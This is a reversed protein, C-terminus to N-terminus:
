RPFRPLKVLCAHEPVAQALAASSGAGASIELFERRSLTVAEHAYNYTRLKFDATRIGRRLVQASMALQAIRKGM